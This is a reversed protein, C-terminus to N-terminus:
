FIIPSFFVYVGVHNLNTSDKLINTISFIYRLIILPNLTKIRVVPLRLCVPIMDPEPWVSKSCLSLTVFFTHYKFILQQGLCVTSPWSTQCKESRRWHAVFNSIKRKIYFRIASEGSKADVCPGYREKPVTGALNGWGVSLNILSGVWDAALRSTFELHDSEM